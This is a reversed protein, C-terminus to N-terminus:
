QPGEGSSRNNRASSMSSSFRYRSGPPLTGAGCHTSFSWEHVAIVDDAVYVAVAGLVLAPHKGDHPRHHITSARKRHHSIVFEIGHTKVSAM